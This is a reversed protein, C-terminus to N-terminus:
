RIVYKKRSSDEQAALKEELVAIDVMNEMNVMDKNAGYGEKKQTSSTSVGLGSDTGTVESGSPRNLRESDKEVGEKKKKEEEEEHAEQHKEMKDLKEMKHKNLRMELLKHSAVQHDHQYSELREEATHEETLLKKSTESADKLILALQAQTDHTITHTM